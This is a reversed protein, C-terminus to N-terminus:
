ERRRIEPIAPVFPSPDYGRINLLAEAAKKRVEPDPDNEAVETLAPIAERATVSFTSLAAAAKARVYASPDALAGILHSLDVETPFIIEGPGLLPPPLVTEEPAATGGSAVGAAQGEALAGEAPSMGRTEGAETPTKPMAPAVVEPLDPSRVFLLLGGLAGGLLVCLGGRIGFIGNSAGNKM